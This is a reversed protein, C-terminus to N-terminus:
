HTCNEFVLNRLAECFAVLQVGIIILAFPFVIQVLTLFFFFTFGIEVLNFLLYFGSLINIYM